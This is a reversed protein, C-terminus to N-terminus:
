YAILVPMITIRAAPLQPQKSEVGAFGYMMETDAVSEPSLRADQDLWPLKTSMEAGPTPM